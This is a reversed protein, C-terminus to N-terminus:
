FPLNREVRIQPEVLADYRNLTMNGKNNEQTTDKKNKVTKTVMM